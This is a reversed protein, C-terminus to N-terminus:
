GVIAKHLQGTQQEVERFVTTMEIHDTKLEELKQSSDKVHTSYTANMTALAQTIEELASATKVNASVASKMEAMAQQALQKIFNHQEQITEEKAKREAQRAKFEEAQQDLYRKLFWKAGLGLGVIILVTLAAPFGFQFWPSIDM